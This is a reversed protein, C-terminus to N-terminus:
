ISRISLRNIIERQRRITIVTYRDMAIVKKNSSLSTVLFVRQHEGSDISNRM